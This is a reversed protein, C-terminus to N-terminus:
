FKLIDNLAKKYTTYEITDHKINIIENDLQQSIIDFLNRHSEHEVRIQEILDSAKKSIPLLIKDIANFPHTTASLIHSGTTSIYRNHTKLHQPITDLLKEDCFTIKGTQPFLYEDYNFTLTLWKPDNHEINIIVVVVAKYLVTYGYRENTTNVNVRQFVGTDKPILFEDGVKIKEIFSEM